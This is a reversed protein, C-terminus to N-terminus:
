GNDIGKLEAKLRTIRGLEMTKNAISEELSALEKEFKELLRADLEVRGMEATLADIYELVEQRFNRCFNRSYDCAQQFFREADEGELVGQSTLTEPLQTNYTFPSISISNVANKIIARIRWAEVEEDGLERRLIKTLEGNLQARWQDKQADTKEAVAEVMEECSKALHEVVANTRITEITVYETRKFITGTQFTRSTTGRTGDLDDRLQRDRRALEKRFEDKLKKNIQEVLEEHAERILFATKELSKLLSDRRKKFSEIEMREIQTYRENAYKLLGNKLEHLSQLKASIYETQRTKIIADKQERVKAIIERIRSINSLKDLNIRSLEADEASFYNRYEALLNGWVHQMGEDWADKQEFSQKLSECIGAAHMIKGQELLSDYTAGVEPNREKLDDIVKKLHSGLVDTTLRDLVRDLDGNSEDQLNGYLQTDAQSAVVYLERIGEKGTIRDMLNLDVTTMFQGAPSVILVVDCQRLHQQTREERSRVPDNIGPTDVIEIDRLNEQPLRINVSKTVPMYRGTAGVYDDLQHRLDALRAWKLVTKEELTGINLVSKEIKDYQEYAAILADNGDRMARKARSSAREEPSRRARTKQAREETLFKEYLREERTKYERHKDKIHRLDEQTFFEVEATLSEGYSLTTLAATMPTAAKPLISEGQFLLANLLSSKGSKVRGVVGIKLLRNEDEIAALSAQLEKTAPVGHEQALNAAEDGLFDEYRGVVRELEDRYAVIGSHEM